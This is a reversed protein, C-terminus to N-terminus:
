INSGYKAWVLWSLRACDVAGQRQVVKGSLKRPVCKLGHWFICVKVRRTLVREAKGRVGMLWGSESNDRKLSGRRTENKAYVHSM